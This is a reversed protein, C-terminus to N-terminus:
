LNCASNIRAKYLSVHMFPLSSLNFAPNDDSNGKMESWGCWAELTLEHAFFTNATTLTGCWHSQRREKETNKDKEENKSQVQTM